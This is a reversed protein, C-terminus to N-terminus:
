GRFLEWGKEELEFMFLRGGGGWGRGGELWFFETRLLLISTISIIPCLPSLVLSNM